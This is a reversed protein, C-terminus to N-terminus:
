KVILKGTKINKGDNLRVLYMGVELDDTPALLDDGVNCEAICVGQLSYFRVM